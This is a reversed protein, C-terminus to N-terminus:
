RAQKNLLASRNSIMELIGTAILPTFSSYILRTPIAYTRSLVVPLKTFNIPSNSSSAPYKWYIHVPVATGLSTKRKQKKCPV